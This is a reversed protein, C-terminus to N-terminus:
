RYGNVESGQWLKVTSDWSGTALVGSRWDMCSIADSHAELYDSTRGYEISYACLNNDKSGLLVTKNNPLPLCASLTMGDAVSISRMVHMEELSYMQMPVFRKIQDFTPQM